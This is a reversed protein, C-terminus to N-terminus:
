YSRFSQTTKSSTRPCHFTLWHSHCRLSETCKARDSVSGRVLNRGHYSLPVPVCSFRPGYSRSVLHTLWYAPRPSGGEDQEGDNSLKHRRGESGLTTKRVLQVSPTYCTGTGTPPMAAGYPPQKRAEALERRFMTSGVIVECHLPDRVRSSLGQTRCNKLEPYRAKDGVLGDRSLQVRSAYWRCTAAFPM